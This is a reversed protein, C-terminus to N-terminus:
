GDRSLEGGRLWDLLQQGLFFYRGARKCVRLRGSRIERRLTSTRLRLLRRVDEALLVANPDIVVPVVPPPDCEVPPKTKSAM